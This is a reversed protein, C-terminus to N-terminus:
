VLPIEALAHRQQGPARRPCAAAARAGPHRSAEGYM